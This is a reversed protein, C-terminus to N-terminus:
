FVGIRRPYRGSRGPALGSRDFEQHRVPHM